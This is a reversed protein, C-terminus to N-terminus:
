WRTYTPDTTALHALWEDPLRTGKRLNCRQCAATLNDPHTPHGGRALPIIHDVHTAHQGCYQCTHHDRELIARMRYWQRGGRGPGASM